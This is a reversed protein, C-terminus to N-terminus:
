GHVGNSNGEEHMAELINQLFEPYKVGMIGFNELLSLGENATFFVISANRLTNTGLAVDLTNCVGVLTFISVKRILGVFMVNSSLKGGSTKPSKKFISAVAIGTILDICVMIVLLSMLNDLGGMFKIIVAWLMAFWLLVAEVLKKTINM